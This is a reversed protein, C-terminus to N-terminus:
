LGEGGRLGHDTAYTALKTRNSLGTKTLINSVHRTVTAPSIVLSEAIESNRRGLAVQGLVELERPSLGDPNEPPQQRPHGESVQIPQADGQPSVARDQSLVLEEIAAAYLERDGFQMFGTDENVVLLKANPIGAAVDQAARLPSSNFGPDLGFVLTGAEVQPLLDRVDLQDM